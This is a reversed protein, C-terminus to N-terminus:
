EVDDRLNQIFNEIETRVSTSLWARYLVYRPMNVTCRPMGTTHRFLALFGRFIGLPLLGFISPCVSWYAKTVISIRPTGVPEGRYHDFDLTYRGTGRTLSRIEIM